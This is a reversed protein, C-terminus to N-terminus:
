TMPNIEMNLKPLLASLFLLFVLFFCSQCDLGIMTILQSQSLEM